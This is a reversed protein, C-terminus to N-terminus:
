IKPLPNKPKTRPDYWVCGDECVDVGEHETGKFSETEKCIKSTLCDIHTLTRKSKEELTENNM